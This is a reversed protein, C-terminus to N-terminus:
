SQKYFTEQKGNLNKETKKEFTKPSYKKKPPKGM